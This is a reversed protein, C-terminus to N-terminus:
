EGKKFKLEYLINNMYKIADEMDRETLPNYMKHDAKKLLGYRRSQLQEDLIPM